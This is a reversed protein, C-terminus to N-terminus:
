TEALPHGHMSWLLIPRDKKQAEVVADWLTTKWGYACWELESERPLIYAHWKEFTERNLEQASAPLRLLIGAVLVPLCRM